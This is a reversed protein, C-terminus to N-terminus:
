AGAKLLAALRAETRGLRRSMAGMEERLRKLEGLAARAEAGRTRDVQAEVPPGDLGDGSGTLLWGVSVNLMGAAMQLKNARPEARDDEWSQVTTLKVGLARAFQAQSMGAAERAGAIRDGLTATAADFWGSEDWGDDESM